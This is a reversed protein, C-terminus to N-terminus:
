HGAGPQGVAIIMPPRKDGRKIALTRRRRLEALSDPQAHPASAPVAFAQKFVPWMPEVDHSLDFVMVGQTAGAAAQLANRLGDPDNKFLSLQIGAYTWTQDNAVRNSLTGAGEITAGIGSGAKMADFITPVRYYCGTILLDLMGAFGTKAYTESLYWFGANLDDAGYNAGYSAYEGYWSGAYVGFQVKPKAAKLTERVKGVFDRMTKARFILWNEYEPGPEIGRNFSPTFTITYVSEPWREVKHGVWKEFAERMQPSFDANMGGFRLRDDYMLMDFDYGRALEDVLKLNREIVDPNLPNVMVPIQQDPREEIKVLDPEVIFSLRMGPVAHSKLWEAAAGRGHVLSGGAPISVRGPGFGGEEFGDVIIGFRDITVAFADTQPPPIKSADTFVDLVSTDENLKNSTSDVAYREGFIEAMVRPEYLVTQWDKHEYALGQQVIRHGESFANMCLSLSLGLKKCERSFIPLPDFEAAITKGRWEALKPAIKSPWLVHGSIPKVDLGIANFGSDKITSLLRIIKEESNYQDVNATCDIWLMRGQWGRQRAFQDAIGQGYQLRDFMLGPLSTIPNERVFRPPQPKVDQTMPNELIAIALAALLM